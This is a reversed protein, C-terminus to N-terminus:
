VEGSFLDGVYNWSQPIKAAVDMLDVLIKEIDNALEYNLKQNIGPVDPTEPYGPVLSKLIKINDLYRTFDMRTPVSWRNWNTKVTLPTVLYGMEIFQDSLNKVATEVRNLDTYTYTGKMEGLWESREADTMAAWGKDHLTRWRAVDQNTRDTIM